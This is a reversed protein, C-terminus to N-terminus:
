ILKSKKTPTEDANKPSWENLDAATVDSCNTNSSNLYVSDKVTSPPSSIIETERLLPVLSVSSTTMEQIPKQSFLNKKDEESEFTVNDNQDEEEEELTENQGVDEEDDEEEEEEEDDGLDEEIDEDRYEDAILLDAFGAATFAKVAEEATGQFRFRCSAISSSQSDNTSGNIEPERTLSFEVPVVGNPFLRVCFINVQESRMPRRWERIRPLIWCQRPNRDEVLIDISFDTPNLSTGVFPIRQKAIRVTEASLLILELGLSDLQQSDPIKALFELISVDDLNSEPISIHRLNPMQPLVEGLVILEKGTFGSYEFACLSNKWVNSIRVIWEGDNSSSSSIDIKRSSNRYFLFKLKELLPCRSLVISIIESDVNSCGVIDFVKLNAGCKALWKELLANSLSPCDAIHIECLHNSSSQRISFELLAIDQTISHDEWEISRLEVNRLEAGLNSILNNWYKNVLQCRGLDIISIHSFVLRCLELPLREIFDVKVAVLSFGSSQLQATSSAAKTFLMYNKSPNVLLNSGSGDTYNKKLSNGATYTEYNLDNNLSSISSYNEGTWDILFRTVRPKELLIERLIRDFDPQKPPNERLEPRDYENNIFYGVRLFEQGLFHGTILLCTVGIADEPPIRSFDPCDSEISFRSIGVSIPGVLVVDLIQDYASNEASGVYTFKWELDESLEQLCEFTIEWVFKNKCSTPNDSLFKISLINVSM